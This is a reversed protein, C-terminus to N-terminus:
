SVEIRVRNAEQEMLYVLSFRHDIHGVADQIVEVHIRLYFVHM